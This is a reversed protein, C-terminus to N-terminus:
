FGIFFNLIILNFRASQEPIAIFIVNKKLASIKTAVM